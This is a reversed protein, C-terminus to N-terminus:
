KEPHASGHGRCESEYRILCADMVADLFFVLRSQHLQGQQDYSDARSYGPLTARQLSERFFVLARVTDVLGVGLTACEQGFLTGIERGEELVPAPNRSRDLYEIALAFLRRGLHRMRKREAEGQFARYWVEGSIRQTAMAERAQDVASHVTAASGSRTPSAPREEMFAALREAPFRRHGGPTRFSPLTGADAWRRLTSPHVGLLKCAEALSLWDRHEQSM